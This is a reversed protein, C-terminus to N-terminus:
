VSIERYRGIDQPALATAKDERRLFREAVLQFVTLVERDLDFPVAIFVPLRFARAPCFNLCSLVFEPLVTWLRILVDGEHAAVQSAQLARSMEGIENPRNLNGVPQDVRGKAVDFIRSRFWLVVKVVEVQVISLAIGFSILLGLSIVVWTTRITRTTSAALEDSQRDVRSHVTEQLEMVARRTASWQPDYVQRMLKMAKDNQQGQTAARVPRSDAVEHDFLATAADMESTLDPSERKAEEMAAHFDTVAQDIEGDIVLMRDPDAEAIEKYLFLGFKNNHAQALTLRQLAKVNKDLLGRYRADITNMRDSSYLAAIIVLPLLAIFIKTRIKLNALLGM